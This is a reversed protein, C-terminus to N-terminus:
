SILGLHLVMMFIRIVVIIKEDDEDLTIYIQPPTKTTATWWLFHLESYFYSKCSRHHIAMKVQDKQIGPTYESLIMRKLPTEDQADKFEFRRSARFWLPPMQSLKRQHVATCSPGIQSSRWTNTRTQWKSVKVSRTASTICDHCNKGSGM